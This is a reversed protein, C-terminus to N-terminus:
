DVESYFCDESRVTSYYCNRLDAQIVQQAYQEYISRKRIGMIRMDDWFSLQDSQIDSTLKEPPHQYDYTIRIGKILFSHTEGMNRMAPEIVISHFTIYKIENPYTPLPNIIYNVPEQQYDSNSWKLPQYHKRSDISEYHTNGSDDMSFLPNSIGMFYRILDGRENSLVIYIRNGTSHSIMDLEIDRIQKINDIVGTMNGETISGDQNMQRSRNVPNGETDHALIPFKPRIEIYYPKDAPPFHTQIRMYATDQTLRVKPYQSGWQIINDAEMVTQSVRAEEIYQPFQSKGRLLVKWNPYRMDRWLMVFPLEEDRFIRLYCDGNVEFQCTNYKYPESIIEQRCPDGFDTINSIDVTKAPTDDIYGQVSAEFTSFDILTDTITNHNQPFVEQDQYILILTFIISLVVLSFGTTKMTKMLPPKKPKM